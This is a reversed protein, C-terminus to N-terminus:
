TFAVENESLVLLTSALTRGLKGRCIRQLLDIIKFLSSALLGRSKAELVSALSERESVNLLRLEPYDPKEHLSCIQDQGFKIFCFWVLGCRYLCPPAYITPEEGVPIQEFHRQALIAHAICRKAMGSTVWAQVDQQRKDADKEGDRGCARELLDMNAYLMIFATHWLMMLNSTQRQTLTPKLKGYWDTLRDSCEGTPKPYSTATRHSQYSLAGIRELMVVNEFENTRDPVAVFATPNSSANGNVRHDRAAEKLM